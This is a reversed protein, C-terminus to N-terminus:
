GQAETTTTVGGSWDFPEGSFEVMVQDTGIKSHPAQALLETPLHVIHGVRVDNTVDFRHVAVTQDDYAYVKAFEMDQSPTRLALDFPARGVKRVTVYMDGDSGGTNDFTSVGPTRPDDICIGAFLYDATDAAAVAYGDADVCVLTGKYIVADAAMPLRLTDVSETTESNIPATAAAFAAAVVLVIAAVVLLGILEM